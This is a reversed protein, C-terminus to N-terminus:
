WEEKNLLFIALFSWYLIIAPKILVGYPISIGKWEYLLEDTLKNAFLPEGLKVYSPSVIVDM